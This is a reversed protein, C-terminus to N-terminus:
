VEAKLAVVANKDTIVVGFRIVARLAVGYIAFYLERSTALEMGQREFFTICSRMDGIYFPAYNKSSATTSPLTSNPVVVVEKGRYRYTNPATVDPVLLPRNQGDDLNSLWLFGDQNTIIKAAQLYSGDLTKFLATNLGKHSTIATAATINLDSDGSVYKNLETLIEKNETRVSAEALRRGMFGIIDINADDVLQNSIPLIVGKDKIVFTAQGFAVDTEAIPTMEAFSQFELDQPAYTAWIGSTATTNVVSVHEKLAVFEKRFEQLTTFQEQPVLYGGKSPTTEIQAPSGPSGSVNFYANREEDTLPQRQEEERAPNLVLKNFARRRLEANNLPTTTICTAQGNEVKKKFNELNSKETAVAIKYEDIIKDLEEAVKAASKIKMEQQLKEVESKKAKIELYLEDSKKM